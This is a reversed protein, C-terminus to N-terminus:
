RGGFRSIVFAAPVILALGFVSAKVFAHAHFGYNKWGRAGATGAIPPRSPDMFYAYPWDIGVLDWVNVVMWAGYLHVLVAGFSSGDPGETHHRWTLWTPVGFFCTLVLAGMWVTLRREEATKAPVMSQIDLPLSHLWLRPRWWFTTWAVVTFPVCALLGDTLIRYADMAAAM